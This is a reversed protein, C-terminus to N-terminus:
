LKLLKHYVDWELLRSLDRRATTGTNAGEKRGERSESGRRHFKKGNVTTNRDYM